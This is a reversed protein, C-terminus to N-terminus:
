AAASTPDPPWFFGEQALADQLAKNTVGPEVRALRNDGDIELIRNMRELSLVIGGAQPVTAGTTGTGKGRTVLPIRHAHCLRAIEVVQEHSTAFLVAQPTAQLRSNDYGYPLCDAPDTFIATQGVIGTLSSIVARQLPAPAPM